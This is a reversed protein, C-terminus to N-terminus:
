ANTIFGANKLVAKLAVYDAELAVFAAVLSNHQEKSPFEYLVDGYLITYFPLTSDYPSPNYVTTVAADFTAEVQLDNWCNSWAAANAFWVSNDQLAPVVLSINATLPM